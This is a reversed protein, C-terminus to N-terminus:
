KKSSSMVQNHFELYMNAKKDNKEEVAKNYLYYYPEADIDKYGMAQLTQTMREYIQQNVQGYEFFLAYNELAKEKNDLGLYIESLYYYVGSFNEKYKSATEFNEVAKNILNKDPSEPNVTAKAYYCM